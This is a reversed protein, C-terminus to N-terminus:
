STYHKYILMANTSKSFLLHALLVKKIYFSSISVNIFGRVPGAFYKDVNSSGFLYLFTPCENKEALTMM